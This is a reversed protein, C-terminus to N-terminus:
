IMERVSQNLTRLEALIAELLQANNDVGIDTFAPEAPQAPEPSNALGGLGSSGSSTNNNFQQLLSPADKYVRADSDTSDIPM